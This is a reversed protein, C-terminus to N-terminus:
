CSPKVMLAIDGRRLIHQYLLYLYISWRELASLKHQGKSNWYNRFYQRTHSCSVLSGRRESGWSERWGDGRLAGRKHRCGACCIPQVPDHHRWQPSLSEDTFDAFRDMPTRSWLKRAVWSILWAMSPVRPTKLINSWCCYLSFSTKGPELEAYAQLLARQKDDLKKPSKM